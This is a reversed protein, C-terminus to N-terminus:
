DAMDMLYTLNQIIKNNTGFFNKSRWDVGKSSVNATLPTDDVIELFTRPVINEMAHNIFQQSTINVGQVQLQGQIMNGSGSSKLSGPLSVYPNSVGGPLPPHPPGPPNKHGGLTLPLVIALIIVILGIGGIIGWKIYKKKKAEATEDNIKSNTQLM